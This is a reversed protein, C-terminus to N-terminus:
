AHMQEQTELAGVHYRLTVQLCSFGIIHYALGSAELQGLPDSSWSSASPSWSIGYLVAVGGRSYCRCLFYSCYDGVGPGRLVLLM